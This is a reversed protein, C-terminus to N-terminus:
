YTPQSVALAHRKTWRAAPQILIPARDDQHHQAVEAAQAAGGQATAAAQDPGAVATAAVAAYRGQATAAAQDPGAVGPPLSIKALTSLADAPAPLLGSGGRDGYYGSNILLLTNFVDVASNGILNVANNATSTAAGIIANTASGGSPSSWFVRGWDVNNAIEPVWNDNTPWKVTPLDASPGPTSIQNPASGTPAFAAPANQMMGADGPPTVGELGPPPGAAQAPAPSPAPAPLAPSPEAADPIIAQPAASNEAPVTQQNSNKAGTYTWVLVGVAAVLAILGAAGVVMALRLVRAPPASTVARIPATLDMVM